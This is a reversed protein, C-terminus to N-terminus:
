RHAVCLHAHIPPHIPPTLLCAPTCSHQRTEKCGTLFTGHIRGENHACCCFYSSSLGFTSCQRHLSAALSHQESSAYRRKDSFAGYCL